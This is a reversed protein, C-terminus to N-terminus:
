KKAPTKAPKAPETKAPETKAPETKAPEAAADAKTPEKAPEKAPEDTGELEKLLDDDEGGKQKVVPEVTPIRYQGSSCADLVLLSGLLLTGLVARTTAM